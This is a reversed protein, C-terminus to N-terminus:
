IRGKYARSDNERCFSLVTEVLNKWWIASFFCFFLRFLSIVPSIPEFKCCKAMLM